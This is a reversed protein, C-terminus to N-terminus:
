DLGRVERRQKWSDHCSKRLTWLNADDWFLAEDGRHPKRHDAVLKSTDAEVVGCGCQCTFMDRVLVSMRLRQWRATKYWQRYPQADRKRDFAQREHPMARLRSKVPTLRSALRKLRAM